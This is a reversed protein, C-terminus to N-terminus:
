NDLSVRNLTQRPTERFLNKYEVSFRGLHNFGCEYAAETVSLDSSPSSLLEYALHLRRFHVFRQINVGYHEKFCRNLHRRGIELDAAILEIDVNSLHDSDIRKRTDIAHRTMPGPADSHQLSHPASKEFVAVLTLLLQGEIEDWAAIDGRDLIETAQTMATRLRSLRDIGPEVILARSVDVLEIGLAAAAELLRDKPVQLHLTEVGARGLAEVECAPTFLVVQNSALEHGFMRGCGSQVMMVDFAEPTSTGYALMSCGFRERFIMCDGLRTEYAEVEFRGPELQTYCLRWGFTQVLRQIEGFDSFRHLLNLNSM